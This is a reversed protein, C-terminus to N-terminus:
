KMETRVKRMLHIATEYDHTSITLGSYKAQEFLNLLKMLDKTLWRKHETWRQVMERATEYEDYDFGKKRAFNTLRNFERVIKDNVTMNDQRARFRQWLTWLQRRGLYLAILTLLVIVVILSLMRSGSMSSQSGASAEQSPEMPKNLDPIVVEEVGEHLREPMTFGATAEFPIWGWGAFYVEAWSHADANRITYVGGENPDRLEDPRYIQYDDTPLVGSSYGKVWRAPIGLTRALVVLASSYYDCYGEQIEFLFRDVFDESEGKSLDPENTYPYTFKLYTEIMKVQDYQNTAEETLELALDSVRSPLESPLQLYEAMSIPDIEDVSTERLGEVDIIPMHSVLEYSRPYFQDWVYWHVVSNHDSWFAFSFLVDDDEVVEEGIGVIRNIEYGGFLVPYPTNDSMTLLQSIEHFEMKSDDHHTPLPQEPRISTLVRNQELDSPEWGTGTYVSRTDGRLYSRYSTHLTMIEAYDFRFGDGLNTDDRRYGSSADGRLGTSFIRQGGQGFLEVREGQMRKWATYPDMIVPRVNPALISVLLTISVIVIVFSIIMGPYEKLYGWSAPHKKAFQEYHHNIALLLGCVIVVAMRQWLIHTTFSDLIALLVVTCLLITYLLAKRQAIKIILLYIIAAGISFWIYPTMVQVSNSVHQMIAMCFSLFNGGEPLSLTLIPISLVIVHVTFMAFLQIITRVKRSGPILVECCLLTWLTAIVATKTENMWYEALWGVLQLMIILWLLYSVPRQWQQLRTQIYQHRLGKHVIALLM